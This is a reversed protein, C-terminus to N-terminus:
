PGSVGGTSLQQDKWAKRKLEVAKKLTNQHSWSIIHQQCFFVFRLVAGWRPRHIIKQGLQTMIESSAEQQPANCINSTSITGGGQGGKWSPIRNQTCQLPCWCGCTQPSVSDRVLLWIIIHPILLWKKQARDLEQLSARNKVLALLSDGAREAAKNRREALSEREKFSERGGELLLSGGM